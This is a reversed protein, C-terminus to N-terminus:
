DNNDEELSEVKALASISVGTIKNSKILQWVDTDKVQLTCLWMGSKVVKEGLVFDVPAIYSEAISFSDTQVLHFLNAQRCHENFNHCAKRVEEETTIDGHLDVEGPAMVVYTVQMLEEELSKKVNLTTM